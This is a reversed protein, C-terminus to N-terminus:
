IYANFFRWKTEFKNLKDNMLAIEKEVQIRKTIYTKFLECRPITKRCKNVFIFYKAYFIIFNKIDKDEDCAGFSITKFNIDTAINISQIFNNFDNWFIQVYNCEWFLHKLDEIGMSCFDCLNSSAINQIFLRKNTPIIRFIYKYQFNRLKVDITSTFINTYITEWKLDDFIYVVM